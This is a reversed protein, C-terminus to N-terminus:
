AVIKTATVGLSRVHELNENRPLPISVAASTSGQPITVEVPVDFFDEGPVAPHDGVGPVLRVEVRVYETAVESLSVEVRVADGSDVDEDLFRVSLEGDTSSPAATRTAVRIQGVQEVPRWLDSDTPPIGSEGFRRGLGEWRPKPQNSLSSLPILVRVRFAMSADRENAKDYGAAVNFWPHPRWGLEVRAGTTWNASGDEAQWRYGTTNLDLTTTLDLQVGLELGELAREEFRSRVHRWGTIPAFYRFAGTGWSGAYDLGFVLVEHQHEASQLYFSSVGLIDSDPEESLRFRHTMGHRFDNRTAGTEDRWRTVGQQLFFSSAANPSNSGSTFSFPTVMDLDGSFGIHGAVSSWSLRNTIQFHEGFTEKGQENAFDINRDLLHNIGDGLFCLAAAETTENIASQCAQASNLSYEWLRDTADAQALPYNAVFLMALVIGRNIVTGSCRLAHCNPRSDLGMLLAQEQFQSNHYNKQKM